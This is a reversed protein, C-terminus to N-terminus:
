ATVKSVTNKSFLLLTRNWYRSVLKPLQPPRLRLLPTDAVTPTCTLGLRARWNLKLVALRLALKASSKTPGTVL